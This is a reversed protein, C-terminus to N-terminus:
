WSNTYWGRKKSHSKKQDKPMSDYRIMKHFRRYGHLSMQDQCTDGVSAIQEISVYPEHWHSDEDEAM